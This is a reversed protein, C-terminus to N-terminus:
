GQAAGKLKLLAASVEETTRFRKTLNKETCREVLEDLWPPVDPVLERVRRRGLHDTGGTLLEFLIVGMSYIDAQRDPPLGALVEPSAYPEAPTAAGQIRINNEMDVAVAEPTLCGYLVNARHSEALARMAQVWLRMCYRPEMRGAHIMSRLSFVREGPAGRDAGEDAEIMAALDEPSPPPEPALELEEVELDIDAPAPRAPRPRQPQAGQAVAGARTLLSQLGSAARLHGPVAALVARYAEAAREREGALALLAAHTTHQEANRATVGADGLLPRYAEAAEAYMREEELLRAARAHNGAASYERAAAVANGFLELAQAARLHDGKNRFIKAAEVYNKTRMYIGAARLSGGSRVHLAAATELEGAAEYCDAARPLERAREWCTAAKFSDGAEEYRAAAAAFNGRREETQAQALPDAAPAAASARVEGFLRRYVLFAVPLLVVVALLAVVLVATRSAADVVELGAPAADAAARAAAPASLAVITASARVRLGVASPARHHRKM